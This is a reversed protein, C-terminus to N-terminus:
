QSIAQSVETALNLVTGDMGPHRYAQPPPSPSTPSDEPLLPPLLYPALHQVDGGTLPAPSIKLPSSHLETKM